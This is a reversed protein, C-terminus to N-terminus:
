RYFYPDLVQVESIKNVPLSNKAAVRRIADTNPGDYICYTKKHDTSVYSHMWTVGDAMNKDVVSLCAKAGDNNVPINLGEAFDREVMYRPM